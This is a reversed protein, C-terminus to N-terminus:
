SRPTILLAWSDLTGVDAGAEDTVKLTWAGSASQGDFATVAITQRINQANRGERNWVTTQSGGHSLVIRLDGIYTHTVNLEVKLTGVTLADAVNITSTIGTTNNDPISAAATSEFRREGAPTGGGGGTGPTLVLALKNFTGVDRSATDKLTLTWTGQADRGAFEAPTFTQRINDASGGTHSWLTSTTGNHALTIELDGVYPHTVDLEVKLTGVTLADPVNLTVTVGAPSNDPIPTSTALEYRGVEPDPPPPTAGCRDGEPSFCNGRAGSVGFHPNSLRSSVAEMIDQWSMNGGHEAGYFLKALLTTTLPFNESFYTPEVNALVDVKAWDGKGALVPRVYYEYSLCSGVQFIQYFDPYRAEEFAMGTGLVSHGNYFVLEHESVAKQWNALHAYDAVNEFLDPGYIDVVETLEGVRKTWRKGMTATTDQAFGADKLWQGLKKVNNWNQDSAVAGDDLKAFLVVADLRHDATLQDYEPYSEPNAPLVRSVTLTMTTPTLTCGSREPNWLYWYVSSDLTIHNDPDACTNGADTMVSYPKLPVKANIVQGERLSGSASDMVIVNVRAMRWHTLKAADVSRAEAHTLWRGDVLWEIREPATGDEALLEIYYQSKNRLYTVGFQAQETSAEFIRYQPASIDSELTVEVETARPNLYGTDEKGDDKGEDLFPNEMWDGADGAMEACAGSLLLSLAGLRLTWSNITSRATKM